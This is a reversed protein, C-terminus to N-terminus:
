KMFDRMFDRPAVAVRLIASATGAGCADSPGAATPADVADDFGSFQVVADLPAPDGPTFGTTLDVAKM